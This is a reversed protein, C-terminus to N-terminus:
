FRHRDGPGPPLARRSHSLRQRGWLRSRLDRPRPTRWERWGASGDPRLGAAHPCRRIEPLPEFGLRNLERMGLDNIRSPPKSRCSRKGYTTSRRLDIGRAQAIGEVVAKARPAMDEYEILKAMAAESVSARSGILRFGKRNRKIPFANGSAGRGVP